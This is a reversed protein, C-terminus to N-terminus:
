VSHKKLSIILFLVRIKKAGAVLVLFAIGIDIGLLQLYLTNCNAYRVLEPSNVSSFSFVNLFAPLFIGMPLHGLHLPAM